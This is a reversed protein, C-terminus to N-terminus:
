HSKASRVPIVSSLATAIPYNICYLRIYVFNEAIIGASKRCKRKVKSMKYFLLLLLLLLLLM